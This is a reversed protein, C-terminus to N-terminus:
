MMVTIPGMLICGDDPLASESKNLNHGQITLRPLLIILNKPSLMCTHDFKDAYKMIARM